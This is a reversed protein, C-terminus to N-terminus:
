LNEGGLGLSLALNVGATVARSSVTAGTIGDLDRGLQLEGSLGVYQALFDPLLARSGFGPTESHSVARVGGVTGDATVSVILNLEGGFGLVTLDVANGSVRTGEYVRYVASVGEPLTAMDRKEMATMQPFLARVAAEKELRMNEAIRERTFLNVGGLLLAVSACIFLLPLAIRALYKLKKM